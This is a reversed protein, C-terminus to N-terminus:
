VREDVGGPPGGAVGAPGFTGRHSASNKNDDAGEDDDGDDFTAESM